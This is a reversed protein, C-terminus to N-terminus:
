TFDKRLFSAMVSSYFTGNWFKRALLRGEKVFGCKMWFNWNTTTNYVEIFICNLNLDRFGYKLLANAAARGYGKKHFETGILLGMEATKNVRNIKDLGCYGVFKPKSNAQYDYIFFYKESGGFSEVWKKQNAPDTKSNTRLSILNENRWAAIKTLEDQKYSMQSLGIM